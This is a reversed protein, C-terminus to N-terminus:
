TLEIRSLITGTRRFIWVTMKEMALSTPRDLEEDTMAALVDPWESEVHNLFDTCENCPDPHTTAIMGALSFLVHTRKPRRQAIIRAAVQARTLRPQSPATLSRSADVATVTSSSSPTAEVAPNDVVMHDHGSSGTPQQSSRQAGKRLSHDRDKDM